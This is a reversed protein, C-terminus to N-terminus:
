KKWEKQNPNEPASKHLHMFFAGSYLNYEPAFLRENDATGGAKSCAAFATMKGRETRLTCGGYRGVSLDECATDKARYNRM